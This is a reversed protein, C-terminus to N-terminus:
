IQLAKEVSFNLKAMQRQNALAYVGTLLVVVSTKTILILNFEQDIYPSKSLGGIENWGAQQLYYSTIFADVVHGAVFSTILEKGKM